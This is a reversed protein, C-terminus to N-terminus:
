LGRLQQRDALVEAESVDFGSAALREMLRRSPMAAVVWRGHERRLIVSTAENGGPLMEVVEAVVPRPVSGDPEPVDDSALQVVLVPETTRAGDGLKAVAQRVSEAKVSVLWGVSLDPRRTLLSLEPGAVDVLIARDLRFRFANVLQDGRRAGSWNYVFAHREAPLKLEPETEFVGIVDLPDIVAALTRLVTTRGEGPGGSVVIGVGAAVAASLLSAMTAPVLEDLTVEPAVSM